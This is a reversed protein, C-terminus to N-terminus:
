RMTALRTTGVERYLRRRIMIAWVATGCALGTGTISLWEILYVWSLAQDKMKLADILATEMEREVQEITLLATHYDQYLYLDEAEEEREEIESLTREAELTRAGFKAAFEIMGLIVLKSSRFGFFRERLTHVLGLDQPIDLRATLFHLSIVYDAYYEWAAVGGVWYGNWDPTHAVSSGQGIDWYVLLPAPSLLKGMLLMKAGAKTTVLNMGQFSPMTDWPFAKIFPEEPLNPAASYPTTQHIKLDRCLVPLVEEVSSGGWTPNGHGGFSEAGGVMMLGMGADVVGRKFWDLHSPTYITRSTDSLVIVDLEEAFTEYTRPIYIRIFRRIKVDDVGLQHQRSAPVGLLAFSPEVVLNTYPRGGWADGLYLIRIRGSLPDRRAEGTQLSALLLLFALLAISKM